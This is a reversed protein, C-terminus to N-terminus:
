RPDFPILSSFPILLNSHFTWTARLHERWRFRLVNGLKRRRYSTPRLRRFESHEIRSPTVSKAGARVLEFVAVPIIVNEVLSDRVRKGVKEDRARSDIVFGQRADDM